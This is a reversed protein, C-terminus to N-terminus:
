VITHTRLEIDTPLNRRGQTLLRALVWAVFAAPDPFLEPGGLYEYEVWVLPTLPSPDVYPHDFSPGRYLIWVETAPV